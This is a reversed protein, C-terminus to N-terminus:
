RGTYRLTSAPSAAQPGHGRTSAVPLSTARARGGHRGRWPWGPKGLGVSGAHIRPCHKACCSGVVGAVVLVSVCPPAALSAKSWAPGPAGASPGDGAANGRRGSSFLSARPESDPHPSQNSVLVHLRHAHPSASSRASPVAAAGGCGAAIAISEPLSCPTACSAALGSSSATAGAPSSPSPCTGGRLADKSRKTSLRDAM